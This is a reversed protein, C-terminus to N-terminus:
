LKGEKQQEEYEQQLERTYDGIPSEPSIVEDEEPDADVKAAEAAFFADTTSPAAKTADNNPEM